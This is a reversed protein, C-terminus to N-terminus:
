NKGEVWDRIVRELVDLPICGNELVVDNFERLDFRSGLTSEAYIRLARIKLEGIKYALAQGPWAIYRDVENAINLLSLATNEAMFDIAQQRSWGLAHMGTDVVLRAARWMEYTLRGFNSYPDQYFGVELGLREAYLAWGEIFATVEGFRRFPPVEAMEQQLAIQLHHGPVAEHFSLAEMEYLPRSKLDYTNVYYYGATGEGTPPFYYATTNHPASYDPVIRIGYPTRPLVKFLRPLEGDMRKLILATKELLATPTDVYFRADNRLFRLFAQFDGQFGTKQILAQMEARIRHVEELGTQHVQEPTLDLTTFHRVCYAYYAKGNPLESAAVVTRAAPLYERTMFDLLRQYAPIVSKQIAQLGKQRMQAAEMSGIEAPLTQFPRAFVTQSADPVVQALLTDEIGALANLAPTFGQQIGTRMLSINAQIYEYFRGLRHIYAKFDAATNFPTIDPLEALSAHPGAVKSVPMLHTNFAYESLQDRLVQEFISANLQDAPSLESRAISQLSTLFARAQEARREFDALSISPLRDDYRHDGCYTAYIPNEKLRFEWEEQFLQHLRISVHTRSDLSDSM